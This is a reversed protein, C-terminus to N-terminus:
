IMALTCHVLDYCSLETTVVRISSLEKGQKPITHDRFSFAKFDQFSNFLWKLSAAHPGIEFAFPKKFTDYIDFYIM